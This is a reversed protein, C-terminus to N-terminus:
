RATTLGTLRTTAMALRRSLVSALRRQEPVAPDLREELAALGRLVGKREGYTELGHYDGLHIAWWRFGARELALRCVLMAHAREDEARELEIRRAIVVQAEQRLNADENANAQRRERAIGARYAFLGMVVALFAMGFGLVGLDRRESKRSWAKISKGRQPAPSLADECGCCACGGGARWCARHHRGLCRECAFWVRGELRIADHCFPCRITPSVQPEVRFQPSPTDKPAPDM